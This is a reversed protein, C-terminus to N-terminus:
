ESSVVQFRVPGLSPSPSMPLPNRRPWMRALDLVNQTALGALAPWIWGSADTAATPRGLGRQQAEESPSMSSPNMSDWYTVIAPEMVMDKSQSIFRNIMQLIWRPEVGADLLAIANARMALNANRVIDQQAPPLAFYHAKSPNHWSGEQIMTARDRNSGTADPGHVRGQQARALQAKMRDWDEFFKRNIEPDPKRVSDYVSLLTGWAFGGLYYPLWPWAGSSSAPRAAGHATGSGSLMARAQLSQSTLKARIDRKAQPSVRARAALTQLLKATPADVFGSVTALAGEDALLVQFVVLAEHTAQDRVGPTFLLLLGLDSLAQQVQSVPLVWLFPSRTAPVQFLFLDSAHELNMAHQSEDSTPETSRSGSFVAKVNSPATLQKPRRNWTGIAWSGDHNSLAKLHDPADKADKWVQVSDFGYGELKRAILNETTFFPADILFAYDRGTSTTVTRDAPLGVRTWGGSTDIMASLIEDLTAQASPDGSGIRRMLLDVAKRGRPDNSHLLAVIRSALPSM